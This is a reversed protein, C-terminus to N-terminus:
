ISEVIVDMKKLATLLSNGAFHKKLDDGLGYGYTSIHSHNTVIEKHGTNIIFHDAVVPKGDLLFVGKVMDVTLFTDFLVDVEKALHEKLHTLKVYENNCFFGCKELIEKPLQRVQDNRVSSSREYVSCRFGADQLKRAGYLNPTSAGVFVIHKM